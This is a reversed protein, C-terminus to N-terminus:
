TSEAALYDMAVYELGTFHGTVHGQSATKMLPWVLITYGLFSPRVQVASLSYDNVMFTLLLPHVRKGRIGREVGRM